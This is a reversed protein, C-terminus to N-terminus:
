QIQEDHKSSVRARMSGRVTWSPATCAPLGRSTGASYSFCFAAADASAPTQCSHEQGHGDDARGALLSARGQREPSEKGGVLGLEVETSLSRGTEFGGGGGAAVMKVADPSM